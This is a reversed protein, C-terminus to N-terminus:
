VRRMVTTAVAGNAVPLVYDMLVLLSISGTVVSRLSDQGSRLPILPWGVAATAEPPSGSLPM